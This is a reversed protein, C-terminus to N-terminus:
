RTAPRACRRSAWRRGAAQSAVGRLPLADHRHRGHARRSGARHSRRGPRRRLRHRRRRGGHRLGHGVGRLANKIADYSEEAARRGVDPDAGSGLGQTLERGVHIRAPAESQQLQQMDTNVAVFDVQSIGADIMRNIANIGAGGVGVVRIVALYTAADGNRAVNLRPAPEPLTIPEYREVPQPPEPVPPGPEPLPEPAPDPDPSPPEPEPQEIPLEPQTEVVSDAPAPAEIQATADPDDDKGEQQQQAAETARFLEALPGERMSARKRAM